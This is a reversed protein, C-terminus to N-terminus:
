QQQESGSSRSEREREVETGEVVAAESRHGLLGRAMLRRDGDAQRATPSAVAAAAVAAAATLPAGRRGGERQRRTHRHAEPRVDPGSPACLSRGPHWLRRENGDHCILM